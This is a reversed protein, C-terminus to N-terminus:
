DYLFLGKMKYSFNKELEKILKLYCSDRTFINLLTEFDKVNLKNIEKDYQNTSNNTTNSNNRETSEGSSREENSINSNSTISNKSFDDSLNTAFEWKIPNDVNTTLNDAINSNPTNSILNRAKTETNDNSNNSSQGNSNNNYNNTSNSSNNTNSTTKGSSNITQKSNILDNFFNINNEYTMKLTTFFEFENIKLTETYFTNFTESDCGLYRNYFHKDLLMYISDLVNNSLNIFPRGTFNSYPNNNERWKKFTILEMM